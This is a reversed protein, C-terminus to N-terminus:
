ECPVQRTDDEPIEIVENPYLPLELYMVRRGDIMVHKADYTSVSIVRVEDLHVYEELDKPAERTLTELRLTDKGIYARTNLNEDAHVHFDEWITEGIRLTLTVLQPIQKKMPRREVRIDVINFPSLDIRDDNSLGIIKAHNPGTIKLNFDRM